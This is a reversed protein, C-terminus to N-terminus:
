KKVKKKLDITDVVDSKKSGGEFYMYDSPGSNELRDVVPEPLIDGKKFEHLKTKDLENKDFLYVHYKFDKAAKAVM